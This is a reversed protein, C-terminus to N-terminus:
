RGARLLDNMSTGVTGEGKGADVDGNTEPKVLKLLRDADENLEKEDKGQLRDALEPSLKKNAAVRFRLLKSEAAEARQEATTARKELKEQESLDRDKFKQIEAKLSSVEDQAHKAKEREAQIANRVADPKEAQAAIAEVDDKFGDKTVAQGAQYKQGDTLEKEGGKDAADKEGTTSAHDEAM